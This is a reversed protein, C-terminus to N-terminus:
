FKSGKSAMTRSQIASLKPMTRALPTVMSATKSSQRLGMLCFRSMSRISSMNELKKYSQEYVVRPFRFNAFKFM